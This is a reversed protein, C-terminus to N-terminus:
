AVVRELDVIFLGGAPHVGRLAHLSGGDFTFWIPCRARHVLLWAPLPYTADGLFVYRKGDLWLEAARDHPDVGALEGPGPRTIRTRAPVAVAAITTAAAISARPVFRRPCRARL